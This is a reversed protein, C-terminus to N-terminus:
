LGWDYAEEKMEERCKKCISHTIKWFKLFPKKMGLWKGCWSCKIIM